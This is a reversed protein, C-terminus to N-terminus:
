HCFHTERHKELNSFEHLFSFNPVYGESLILVVQLSVETELTHPVLLFRCSQAIDDDQYSVELLNGRQALLLDYGYCGIYDEYPEEYAHVVTSSYYGKHYGITFVPLSQVSGYASSSTTALLGTGPASTNNGEILSNKKTTMTVDSPTMWLELSLGTSLSLTENSNSNNSNSQKMSYHDQLKSTTSNTELLAMMSNMTAARIGNTAYDCEFANPSPSVLISPIVINSLPDVDVMLEDDTNTDNADNTTTTTTTIIRQIDDESNCSLDLKMVPKPVEHVFKPPSSSSSSKTMTTTTLQDM